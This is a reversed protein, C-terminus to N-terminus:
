NNYWLKKVKQYGEGLKLVFDDPLKELAIEKLENPIGYYAEAISGTIAGITDTDGGLSVANRIAEEFSNSEFFAVLCKDFVMCTSDFKNTKRLQELSQHMPYFKNEVYKKDYGSRGMFIMDNLACSSVLALSSDHSCVTAKKTEEFIENIDNFLYAIPSVRMLAGSGMSNGEKKGKCWKIFGPSFMYKFHNAKTNPVDNYYKLGYNKLTKDYDKGNIVADLIAITLITDDTYFSDKEILNDKTLVSLRRNMDKGKFEDYEYISGALDGIIAGLM